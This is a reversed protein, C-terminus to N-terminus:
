RGTELYEFERSQGCNGGSSGDHVAAQVVVVWGSITCQHLALFRVCPRACLILDRENDTDVYPGFRAAGRGLALHNSPVGWGALRVCGPPRTPGSLRYADVRGTRRMVGM